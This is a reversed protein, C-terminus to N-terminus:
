WISRRHSDWARNEASVPLAVTHGARSRRDACTHHNPMAHTLNYGAVIRSLMCRQRKYEPNCVKM